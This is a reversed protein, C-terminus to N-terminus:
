KEGEILATMQDSRCERCLFRWGDDTHVNFLSGRALLRKCGECDEHQFLNPKDNRVTKPFDLVPPKGRVKEEAAEWDARAAARDEDTLQSLRKGQYTM